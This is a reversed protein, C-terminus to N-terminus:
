VRYRYVGPLLGPPPPHRTPRTATTYPTFIDPDEVGSIPAYRVGKCFFVFDGTVDYYRGYTFHCDTELQSVYFHSLRINSM